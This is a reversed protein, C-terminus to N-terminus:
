RPLYIATTRARLNSEFAKSAERLRVKVHPWAYTFSASCPIPPANHVARQLAESKNLQPVGLRSALQNSYCTVATSSYNRYAM